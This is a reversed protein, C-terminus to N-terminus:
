RLGGMKIWLDLRNQVENCVDMDVETDGMIGAIVLPNTEDDDCLGGYYNGDVYDHLESFSAATKPVIKTRVDSLIEGKAREVIKEILREREYTEMNCRVPVNHRPAQTIYVIIKALHLRIVSAGM